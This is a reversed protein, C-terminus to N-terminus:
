EFVEAVSKVFDNSKVTAFINFYHANQYIDAKKSIIPVFVVNPNKRTLVAKYNDVIIYITYGKSILFKYLDEPKNNVKSLVRGSVELILDPKQLLITEAGELAFLEYGEIDLFILDFGSISEKSAYKDLTVMPVNETQTSVHSKSYPILSSRINEIYMKATGMNNGVAMKELTIKKFESQNLEFNEKSREYLNAVPEFAYIHGATVKAAHLVTFGIHSGAIVISKRVRALRELLKMTAPEWIYEIYPGVFIIFRNLIDNMDARMILNNKLKVKTTFSLGLIRTGIPWMFLDKIKQPLPFYACILGILKILFNKV